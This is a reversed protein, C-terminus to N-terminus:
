SISEDTVFTGKKVSTIKLKIVYTKNPKMNLYVDSNLEYDFEDDLNYTPEYNINGRTIRNKYDIKTTVDSEISGQIPMHLASTLLLGLSWAGIILFNNRNYTPKVFGSVESLTIEDKIISTINNTSNSMQNNVKM